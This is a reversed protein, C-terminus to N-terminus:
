QQPRGDGQEEASRDDPHKEHGSGNPHFEERDGNHSQQRHWEHGKHRQHRVIRNFINRQDDSLVAQLKATADAVQSLKKAIEMAIEARYNAFTAADTNQDPKKAHQEALARYAKAYAEWAAQQSANIELREEVKDLRNNISGHQQEACAPKQDGAGMHDAWATSYGIAMVAASIIAAPLAHFSKYSTTTM